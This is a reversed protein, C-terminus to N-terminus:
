CAMAMGSKRMDNLLSLLAEGEGPGAGLREGSRAMTMAGVREVELAPLQDKLGHANPIWLAYRLQHESLQDRTAIKKTFPNLFRDDRRYKRPTFGHKRMWYLLELILYEPSM